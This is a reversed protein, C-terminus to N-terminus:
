DTSPQTGKKKFDLSDNMQSEAVLTARSEADDINSAMPTEDVEDVLLGEAAVEDDEVWGYLEDSGPGNVGEDDNMEAFRRKPPRTNSSITPQVIDVAALAM